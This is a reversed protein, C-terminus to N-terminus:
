NYNPQMQNMVTFIINGIFISVVGSQAGLFRFAELQFHLKNEFTRAMFKSDSGTVVADVMCRCFLLSKCFQEM